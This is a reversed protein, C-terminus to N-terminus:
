RILAAAIWDFRDQLDGHDGFDVILEIRKATTVDLRVPGHLEGRRVNQQVFRRKGDVLIIATTDALAGSDDDIGFSTVFERYAGKLDYTLSSRSHVGVGHEFTEGAVTLPDGLVNRDVAYEWDLSLMATHEYSIPRHEGLWEWRGGVVDIRVIRGAPIAVRQGHRLRAEAVEGAWDLDTVSLRGSSQLTVVFFPREVPGPAALAVRVAVLLRHPVKTEGLSGEITIGAGDIATIFGRLVDGNTLLVRDEDGRGPGNFWEASKRDGPSAARPADLRSVVELPVALRGLDATEVVIGGAPSDEEANVVRGYVVDGGVLTVTTDSVRRTLPATTFSIGVLDDPAIRREPEVPPRVVAGGSLSLALLEGRVLDPAITKIVVEVGAARPPASATATIMVTMALHVFGVPRCSRM